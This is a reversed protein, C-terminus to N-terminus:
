SATVPFCRTPLSCVRWLIYEPDEPQLNLCNNSAVETLAGTSNIRFRGRTAQVIDDDTLEFSARASGLDTAAQLAAPMTSSGNLLESSSFGRMSTDLHPLTLAVALAGPGPVHLPGSTNAVCGCPPLSLATTLM